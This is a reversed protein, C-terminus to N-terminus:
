PLHEYRLGARQRYRLPSCGYYRWFCRILHSDDTFGWAAAITKLVDDGRLLQAAAKSLRYRLAFQAFSLGMLRRFINNFHNRSLGCQRAAEQATILRQSNFVLQVAQNIRNCYSGPIHAAGGGSKQPHLLLLLEMLLLRRWVAGQEAPWQAKRMFRKATDLFEKQQAPAAQPRQAPPLNFPALWNFGPAEDCRLTVLLQPLIVLVLVRCPAQLIKYGHPEWMGCFWVGGPGLECHWDEYERRMRGSFVVGLELEYHIDFMFERPQAHLTLASRIPQRESLTFSRRDVPAAPWHTPKQM